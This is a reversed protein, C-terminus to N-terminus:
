VDKAIYYAVMATGVIGCAMIFLISYEGGLFASLSAGLFIGGITGLHRFIRGNRGNILYGFAEKVHIESVSDVRDKKAYKKAVSNLQRFFWKTKKRLVAKANKSFPCNSGKQRRTDVKRILSRLKQKDSQNNM